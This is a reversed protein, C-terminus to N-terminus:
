EVKNRRYVYSFVFPCVLFCCCAVLLINLDLSSYISNMHSLVFVALTFMFVFFVVIDDDM